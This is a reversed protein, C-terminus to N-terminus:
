IKLDVTTFKVLLSICIHAKTTFRQIWDDSRKRAYYIITKRKKRKKNFRLAYKVVICDIAFYKLISNVNIQKLLRM